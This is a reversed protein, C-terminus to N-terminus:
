RITIQWESAPPPQLCHDKLFQDWEALAKRAVQRIDYRDGTKRDEVTLTNVKRSRDPEKSQERLPRYSTGKRPIQDDQNDGASGAIEPWREEQKATDLKFHKARNALHACTKIHNCQEQNGIEQKVAYADQFDTSPDNGVWDRLHSVDMLFHFWADYFEAIDPDNITAEEPIRKYSRHMRMYQDQWTDMAIWSM